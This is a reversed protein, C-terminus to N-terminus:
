LLMKMIDACQLCSLREDAISHIVFEPKSMYRFAISCFFYIFVCYSPHLECIYNHPLLFM